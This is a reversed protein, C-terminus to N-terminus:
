ALIGYSKIESNSYNIHKHAMKHINWPTLAYPIAHFARLRNAISSGKKALIGLQTVGLLLHGFLFMFAMIAPYFLIYAITAVASVLVRLGKSKEWLTEKVMDNPLSDTLVSGYMKLGLKQKGTLIGDKDRGFRAPLTDQHARCVQAFFMQKYEDSDIFTEFNSSNFCNVYKEGNFYDIFHQNTAGIAAAVGGRDVSSKCHYVIPLGTFRQLLDTFILRKRVSLNKDELKSKIKNLFEIHSNRINTNFLGGPSLKPDETDEKPPIKEFLASYGKSNIKNELSKGNLHDNFLHSLIEGAGSINQHIHIPILKILVKDDDLDFEFSNEKALLHHEQILSEREDLHSLDKIEGHKTL